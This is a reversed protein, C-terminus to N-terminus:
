IDADFITRSYCTTDKRDKEEAIRSSRMEVKHWTTLKPWWSIEQYRRGFSSGGGNLREADLKIARIRDRKGLRSMTRILKGKGEAM